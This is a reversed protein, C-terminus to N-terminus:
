GIACDSRTNLFKLMQLKAESVLESPKKQSNVLTMMNGVLKGEIEYKRVADQTTPLFGEFLFLGM